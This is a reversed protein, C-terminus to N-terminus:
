FYSAAKVEPWLDEELKSFVDVADVDEEDSDPDVEPFIYIFRRLIQKAKYISM